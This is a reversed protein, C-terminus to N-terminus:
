SAASRSSFAAGGQLTSGTEVLRSSFFPIYGKDGLAIAMHMEQAQTTIGTEQPMIAFGGKQALMGTIFHKKDM